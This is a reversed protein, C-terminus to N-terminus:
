VWNRKKIMIQTALLFIVVISAFYIVDRTDIVGRSINFYHSQLGINSLVFDAGNAFAPISSIAEFGFYFFMCAVLSLLFGLIQSSTLASAFVGIACFSAALFLLGIYSGLIGGTDMHHGKSALFTMSFIYIITPLLAMAVLALSAFYKGLILQMETIPKTLLIEITGSKWEDPFMRMTIAPILFLLVWPAFAFFKDLSLFGYDLMNTSPLVWMFLGCILLVVLIVVFGVLSSFYGKIEKLFISYM